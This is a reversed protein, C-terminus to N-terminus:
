HLRIEIFEEPENLHWDNWKFEDSVFPKFAVDAIDASRVKGYQVNQICRVIDRMGRVRVAKKLNKFIGLIKESVYRVDPFESLILHVGLYINELNRGKSDEGADSRLDVEKLTLRSLLDPGKPIRRIKEAGETGAFLWALPPMTFTKGDRIYTGEELPTLFNRYVHEQNLEADVEDFFVLLPDDKNQSQTTVITDFCSLIDRQDYMQSINFPLFRLGVSRALCKALYTKGSGPEAFLLGSFNQRKENHRFASLSRVLAALKKRRSEQCCIYGQVDPMARWLEIKKSGFENIVGLGSLAADWRDTEEQLSSSGSSRFGSVSAAAKLNFIPRNEPKWDRPAQFRGIEFKQWRKTYSLSLDILRELRITPQDLALAVLPGFCISAMSLKVPFQPDTDQQFRLVLDDKKSDRKKGVALATLNQPLVVVRLNAAAEFEACLERLTILAEQSPEHMPTMWATVGGEEADIASSAAAPPIVLLRLDVEKLFKFWKPRWAKTSVFWPVRPGYCNVLWKITAPSVVGKCLDKIVVADIRDPLGEGIGALEGSDDFWAPAGTEDTRAPLEWDIRELQVIKAGTYQYIRIVRTTGCPRTGSKSKLVSKLNVLEIKPSRGQANQSLRFPTLGHTLKPDFMQKLLRTDGDAWLGLGTVDFRKRAGKRAHYLVSASRGAGCFAQVSSAEGHQTRYHSVGTRSSIKSRHIGTVWYDDVVWDGVILIKLPRRDEDSSSRGINRPTPKRAPNADEKKM